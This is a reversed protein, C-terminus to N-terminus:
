RLEPTGADPALGIRRVPDRFRPDSRIGAFAPEVALEILDASGGAYSKALWEFAQDPDTAILIKAM